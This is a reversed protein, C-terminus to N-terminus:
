VLTVANRSWGCARCMNSSRFDLSLESYLHILEEGQLIESLPQEYINGFIVQDDWDLCCMVVSGTHSVIVELLPSSCAGYPSTRVDGRNAREYISMRDDLKSYGWPNGADTSIFPFITKDVVGDDQSTAIIALNNAPILKNLENYTQNCAEAFSNKLQKDRQKIEAPDTVTLM